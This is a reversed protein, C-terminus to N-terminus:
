LTVGGYLIPLKGLMVQRTNVSDTMTMGVDLTRSLVGSQSNYPTDLVLRMAAEPINIQFFGVDVMTLFGNALTAQVIPGQDDPTGFDYWAIYGSGTNNPTDGRLEFEFTWGIQVVLAGTASAYSVVYGAMTNLGTATDAITIPDGPKIGLGPAVTLALASLQSGVPYAPITISTASTTIIAGDTVTWAASTFASNGVTSVGALNIPQGLDDDFISGILIFDERNTVQPLLM